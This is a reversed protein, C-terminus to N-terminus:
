KDIRCAVSLQCIIGSFIKINTIFRAIHLCRSHCCIIRADVEFPIFREQLSKLTFPFSDGLHIHYPLKNRFRYRVSCQADTIKVMRPNETDTWAEVNTYHISAM